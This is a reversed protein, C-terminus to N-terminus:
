RRVNGTIYGALLNPCLVVPCIWRTAMRRWGGQGLGCLRGLWRWRAGGEAAVPATVADMFDALAQALADADAHGSDRVASLWADRGGAIRREKRGIDDLLEVQERGLGPARFCPARLVDLLDQLPFDDDALKLLSLLYRIAPMDGLPEGRAFALQLGHERGALRLHGAYRVWDRLAILCEESRTDTELLLERIRRTIARAEQAPGPAELTVLSGGPKQAEIDPRFLQAAVQQLTGSGASLTEIQLPRPSHQQLLSLTRRFRAGATNDRGPLAPLTVLARPVCGALKMLLSAQLPTFHDFGDVLLLDVQALEDQLAASDLAEQAQRLRATCDQRDQAELASRYRTAIRALERERRSVAAAAFDEPSLLQHRLEDLFTGIARLLGPMATAAAYLELEDNRALEDIVERLLDLREERRLTQSPRGAMAPVQGALGDFRLLRINSAVLGDEEGFVLRQRFAAERIGDPLLVWACPWDPKDQLRRLLQLAHETAGAGPAAALVSTVGKADAPITQM